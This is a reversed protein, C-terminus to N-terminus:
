SIITIIPPPDPPDSLRSALRDPPFVPLISQSPSPLERSFLFPLHHTTDINLLAFLKGSGCPSSSVTTARKKQPVSSDATEIKGHNEHIGQDQHDCHGAGNKATKAMAKPQASICCSAPSQRTAKDQQTKLWCCCTHAASRELSCGDIRCDGSCEGTVAHAIVNSQIACPALPSFVIVLYVMTLFLSTIYRHSRKM